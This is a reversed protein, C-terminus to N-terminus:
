RYQTVQPDRTVGTATSSCAEGGGCGPGGGGRDFGGARVSTSCAKPWLPRKRSGLLRQIATSPAPASADPTSTPTVSPGVRLPAVKAAACEITATTEWGLGFGAIVVGVVSVVEAAIGGLVGAGAAAAGAVVVGALVVAVVVGVVVVVVVLVVVVFVVVVGAAV